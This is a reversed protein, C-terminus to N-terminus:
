KRKKKLNILSELGFAEAAMSELSVPNLLLPLVEVTLGCAVPCSVIDSILEVMCCYPQECLGFKVVM